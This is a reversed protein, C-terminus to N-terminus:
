KRMAKDYDDSLHSIYSGGYGWMWDSKHKHYEKHILDIRESVILNKMHLRYSKNVHKLEKFDNHKSYFPRYKFSRSM